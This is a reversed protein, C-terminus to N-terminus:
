HTSRTNTSPMIVSELLLIGRLLFGKQDLIAHSPCSDFRVTIRKCINRSTIPQPLSLSLSVYLSLYHSLALSRSLSLSRSLGQFLSLSISMSQFLSVSLYQFLSPSHALSHTLSHALSSLSPCPPVSLCSLQFPRVLLLAPLLSSLLKLLSKLPVQAFPRVSRQCAPPTPASTM